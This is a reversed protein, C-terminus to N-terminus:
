LVIAIDSLDGIQDVVDSASLIDRLLLGMRVEDVQNKGRAFTSGAPATIIPPVGYSACAAPWAETAAMPTM